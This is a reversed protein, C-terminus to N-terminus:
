EDGQKIWLIYNEDNPLDDEHLSESDECSKTNLFCRPLTAHMDISKCEALNDCFYKCLSVEACLANSEPGDYSSFYGGCYCDDGVCAEGGCKRYCQHINLSTM